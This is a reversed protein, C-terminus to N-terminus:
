CTLHFLGTINGQSENWLRIAEPTPHMQVRCNAERFFEAAEVSLKLMGSQGTGVILGESGAQYIHKAEDVSVIHSTGTVAKSLKKKRKKIEGNLRIFVDHEYREGEITISGFSTSDIGPKM